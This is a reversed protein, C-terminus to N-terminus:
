ADKPANLQVNPMAVIGLSVGIAILFFLLLVLGDLKGFIGGILAIIAFAWLGAVTIERTGM